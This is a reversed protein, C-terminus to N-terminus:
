TRRSSGSWQGSGRRMPPQIACKMAADLRELGAEGPVAVRVVDAMGFSTCDRVLVAQEALRQRLDGAQEVLVWNADTDRVHLGHQELLQVLQRRLDRVGAAWGSLDATELLDPLASAALGNVAWQPQRRRLREIFDVDASLVYGIRLGPCAFLKTLSGLVTAGRVWDGRTWTGAALPWFAEDWVAATEGGAAFCGSPNHPNSRWRPGTAEVAPLHRRYLSFDPEDVRGAGLAAAVLAIAEAGGNTLLLQDPSVGIADALAASAFGPDPYRALADLHRAVVAGADPALPNLSASLDLVDGVPIGLAAALRAGDGGHEGAAVATV